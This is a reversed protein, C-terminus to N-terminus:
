WMRSRGQTKVGFRTIPYPHMPLGRLYPTFLRALATGREWNLRHRQSRRKLAHRWVSVIEWRFADLRPTNGPVHYDNCYGRFLRRLWQGIVPAPENSRKYLQARIEKLTGRMRKSITVRGVM